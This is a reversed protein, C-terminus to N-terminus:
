FFAFPKNEIFEWGREKFRKIEENTLVIFYACQGESQIDYYQYGTNKILENIKNIAHSVDWWDDKWIFDIFDEKDMYKFYTRCRTYLTHEKRKRHWESRIFIPQFIGRSIKAFNNLFKIELGENPDIEIDRVWIRNEDWVVLYRDIEFISRKEWEQLNQPLIDKERMKEFIEESSLNSYEKFFDM